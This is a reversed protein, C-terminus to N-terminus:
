KPAKKLLADLTKRIESVNVGPRVYALTGKADIIATKPLANHLGYSRFTIGERDIAVPYDLRHQELFERARLSSNGTEAVNIAVVRVGRRRYARAVEDRMQKATDHSPASWSAFWHVVVIKGKFQSLKVRRGGVRPLDFKPAPEGEAARLRRQLDSLAAVEAPTLELDTVHYQVPVPFRSDRVLAGKPFPLQLAGEALKALTRRATVVTERYLGTPSSGPNLVWEEVTQIELGDKGSYTALLLYKQELTRNLRTLQRDMDWRLIVPHADDRITLRLVAGSQSGELIVRGDKRELRTWMAGKLNAAVRRTLIANGPIGVVLKSIMGEIRVDRDLRLEMLMRRVEGTELTIVITEAAGAVLPPTVMRRRWGEPSYFLTGSGRSTQVAKKVSAQTEELPAKPDYERMRQSVTLELRGVAMAAEAAAVRDLLARAEAAVKADASQGAGATSLGLLLAGAVLARVIRNVPPRASM